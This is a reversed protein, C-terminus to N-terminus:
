PLQCKVNFMRFVRAYVARRSRLCVHRSRSVVVDKLKRRQPRAQVLACHGRVDQHHQRAPQGRQQRVEPPGRQVRGRPKGAPRPQRVPRPEQCLSVHPLGRLLAARDLHGPRRDKQQGVPQPRVRCLRGDERLDLRGARQDRHRVGAQVRILLGARAPLGQDRVRHLLRGPLPVGPPPPGLLDPAGPMPDAGDLLVRPGVDVRCVRQVQGQLVVTEGGQRKVEGPRDRRFLQVRQHRELGQPRALTFRVNQWIIRQRM